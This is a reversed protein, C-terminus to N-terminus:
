RDGSYNVPILAANMPAMLIGVSTSGLLPVIGNSTAEIRMRQPIM